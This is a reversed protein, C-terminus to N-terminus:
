ARFDAALKGLYDADHEFLPALQAVAEIIADTHRAAAAKNGDDPVSGDRVQLGRLETAAQKLRLWAPHQAPNGQMANRSTARTPTITMTAEGKRRGPVDRCATSTHLSRLLAVAMSIEFRAVSLCSYHEAGSASWM